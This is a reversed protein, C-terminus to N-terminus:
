HGRALSIYASSLLAFIYAQLCAIFIEFITFAFCAGFSILLVPKLAISAKLFLFSTMAYFVGLLLHGSIMNVMLRVTLTFPRLIFTSIFEIPTLIIYVPKPIGEPFLSSKWFKGNGQQKIGAYIFMVWSCIALLLPMAVLSTSAVNLLPIVGTINM